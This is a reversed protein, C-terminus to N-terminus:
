LSAVLGNGEASSALLICLMFKSFSALIYDGGERKAQLRVLIAAFTVVSGGAFLNWGRLGRFDYM